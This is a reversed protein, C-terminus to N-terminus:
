SSNQVVIHDLGSLLQDGPRTLKLSAPKAASLAGFAGHEDGEFIQSPAPIELRFPLNLRARIQM